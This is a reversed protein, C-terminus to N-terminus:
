RHLFLHLPSFSISSWSTVCCFWCLVTVDVSDSGAVGHTPTKSHFQTHLHPKCFSSIKAQKYRTTKNKFNSTKHGPNTLKRNLSSADARIPNSSIKYLFLIMQLPELYRYGSTSYDISLVVGMMKPSQVYIGM